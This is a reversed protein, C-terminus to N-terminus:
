KPPHNKFPPKPRYKHICVGYGISVTRCTNSLCCSYFLVHNNQFPDSGPAFSSELFIPIESHILLHYTSEQILFGAPLTKYNLQIDKKKVKNIVFFWCNVSHKSNSVDAILLVSSM